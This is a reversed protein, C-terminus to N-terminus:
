SPSRDRYGSDVLATEHRRLVPMSQVHCQRDFRDAIENRSRLEAAVDVADERLRAIEGAVVGQERHVCRAVPRCRQAEREARRDVQPAVEVDALADITAVSACARAADLKPQPLCADPARCRRTRPQRRRPDLRMQM